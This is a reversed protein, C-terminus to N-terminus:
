KISGFDGMKVSMLYGDDLVTFMLLLHQDPEPEEKVLNADEVSLMKGSKTDYVYLSDSVKTTGYRKELVAKLDGVKIGSSYEYYDKSDEELELSVVKDDRYRIELDHDYEFLGEKDSASKGKGAIEEADSRSMGYCIEKSEGQKKVCIDSKTIKPSSGCGTLILMGGLLLLVIKKM